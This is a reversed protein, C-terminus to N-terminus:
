HGSDSGDSRVSCSSNSCRSSCKGSCTSSCSGTCSGTCSGSCNGYCVCWNYIANAQSVLNNLKAERMIEGVSVKAEIATSAGSKNKAETLWTVLNNYDTATTKTGSTVKNAVKGLGWKARANDITDMTSNRITSLIKDGTAM